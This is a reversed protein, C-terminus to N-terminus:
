FNNCLIISPSSYAEAGAFNAHFIYISVLYTIFLLALISVEIPARRRKKDKKEPNTSPKEVIVLSRLSKTFYRVTTSVGIGGMISVAPALVLLLRVMVSAFYVALVVYMAAFIKAPTPRKYCHYLGVPSFIVLFHLDFFFSSRLLLYLYTIQIIPIENM